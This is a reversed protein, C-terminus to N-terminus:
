YHKQRNIECSQGFENEMNLQAEVLCYCRDLRFAQNGKAGRIDAEVINMARGTIEELNGVALFIRLYDEYSLGETGEEEALMTQLLAGELSYHWTAANKMLPVRNGAFIQRVDYMSEAISWGFLISVKFLDKLEPVFLATSVLLAAIEAEEQKTEDTALYAVNAVERLGCLVGAMETLNACDDSHGCIVYEVQYCLAGEEKEHLANGMYNLLYEDFLVREGLESFGTNTSDTVNGENVQKKKMRSWILNEEVIAKKSMEFGSPMVTKLFSERRIRDVAETSYRTLESKNESQDGVESLKKRNSQSAALKEDVERKEEEINRETLQNVEVVTLWDIVSQVISLGYDGQIANIAQRRFVAGDEDTLLVAGTIEVKSPYMALLDKYLLTHVFGLDAARPRCNMTVYEQLHLRVKEVGGESTGYSSDIALLNYQRFLERHYEALISNLGIDTICETELRMTSYRTGELLVLYLSLLIALVFSMYVTLYGKM